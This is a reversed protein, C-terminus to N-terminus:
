EEKPETKKVEPSKNPKQQFTVQPMLITGGEELPQEPIGQVNGSAKNDIFQDGEQSNTIITKKLIM